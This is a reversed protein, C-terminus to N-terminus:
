NVVPRVPRRPDGEPLPCRKAAQSIRRAANSPNKPTGPVPITLCTDECPCHLTGWHGGSTIKWGAAVLDKLIDRLDKKTHSSPDLEHGGM